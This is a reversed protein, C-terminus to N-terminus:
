LANIRITSQLQETLARLLKIEAVMWCTECGHEAFSKMQIDPGNGPRRQTEILKHFALHKQEIEELRM